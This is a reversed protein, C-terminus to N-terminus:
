SEVKYVRVYPIGNIKLEYFPTNDRYRAWVDPVRGVQVSSIYFLVYEPTPAGPKVLSSDEIRITRGPFFDEFGNLRTTAVTSSRADQLRGLDRAAKDLGEGWGVVIARQAAYPGGVLWNYDAIEYPHLAFGPAHLALAAAVAVAAVARRSLVSTLWVAAALDAALLSPLLYRDATKIGLGIFLAFSAGFLLLAGTVAARPDNGKRTRSWVSAAIVAPLTFATLRFLAVVPYVVFGPPSVRQGLFFGSAAADDVAGANTSVIRSLASVPDVWLAPWLVLYVAAAVGTWILFRRRVGLGDRRLVVLVVVALFGAFLTRTLMAFGALVGSIVLLQTASPRRRVAGLLALVSGLMALAELGDLQLVRNHAILFPDLALVLGGVAAAMEGVLLRALLWVALLLLISVVVIGLRARAYRERLPADDPLTRQALGGIWSTTVGPQGSTAAKGFDADFVANTFRESRELWLKEDVTFGEDLTLARPVFAVAAIGLGILLVVARSWTTSPESSRRLGAPADLTRRMM